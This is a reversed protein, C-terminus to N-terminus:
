ERKIGGISIVEMDDLEDTVRHGHLSFLDPSLVCGHRVGRTMEMWDTKEESVNVAARQDWYLNTILRVEKGAVRIEVVINGNKDKIIKNIRM